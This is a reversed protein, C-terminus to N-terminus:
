PKQTATSLGSQNEFVEKDWITIPDSKLDYLNNDIISKLIGILGRKSMAKYTARNTFIIFKKV